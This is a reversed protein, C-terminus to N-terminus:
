KGVVFDGYYECFGETGGATTFWDAGPPDGEGSGVFSLYFGKDALAKLEEATFLFYYGTEGNPLDVTRWVSPIPMSKAPKGPVVLTHYLFGPEEAHLKMMASLTPSFRNGDWSQISKGYDKASADVALDESRFRFESSDPFQSKHGLFSIKEYLLEARTEDRPTEKEPASEAESRASIEPSVSEVGSVVPLDKEAKSWAVAGTGAIVAVCAALVGCRFWLRRRSQVKKLHEDRKRLVSAAMEEATKM